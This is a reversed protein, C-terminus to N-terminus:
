MQLGCASATVILLVPLSTFQFNNASYTANSERKWNLFEKANQHHFDWDTIIFDLHKQCKLIQETLFEKASNLDTELRLNPEECYPQFWTLAESKNISARNSIYLIKM